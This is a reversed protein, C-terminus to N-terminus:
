RRLFWDKVSQEAPNGLPTFGTPDYKADDMYAPWKWLYVGKCWDRGELGAIMAAYCAAQAEPDTARGDAEAHPNAWPTTCSRFGIETFLVPKGAKAAIHEIKDVVEAFGANLEKQKPKDKKSIPYYCNVGIYDLADWFACTEFEDGWNAAYTIKGHYIKRLLQIMNRWDDPRQMTAKSFEVGICLIDAEYMEAMIAYHRIWRYYHDFFANWDAENQMAVEGTWDNWPWVQPKIMVSMGVQKSSWICHVISEDNESGAGESFDLWSPAHVDAMGAYPIVATANCHLDHATYALSHSAEV